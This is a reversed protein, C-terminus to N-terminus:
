SCIKNLKVSKYDNLKDVEIIILYGVCCCDIIEDDLYRNFSVILTNDECTINDLSFKYSMSTENVNIIALDKNEFYNDSYEKTLNTFSDHGVYENNLHLREMNTSIYDNLEEMSKVITISDEANAYYQTYTYKVTGKSTFALVFVSVLVLAVVGLVVKMKKM